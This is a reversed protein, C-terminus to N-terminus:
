QIDSCIILTQQIIRQIETIPSLTKFAFRTSIGSMGENVGAADRYEQLSKANPDTDKLNEGDYIRMKSYLNSNEHEKLRTLVSFRALFQLTEPGCPTNANSM